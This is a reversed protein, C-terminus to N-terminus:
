NKSRGRGARPHPGGSKLQAKEAALKEKAIALALDVWETTLAKFTKYNDLQHVVPPVLDKPIFQTTSKGQHVYSLQFYPGHKQPTRPDQCRCGERGCVTRQQNLSGPRMDGIQQLQRKIREVRTEMKKLQM